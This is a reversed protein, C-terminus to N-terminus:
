ASKFHSFQQPLDVIFTAGKGLSSECRVGGGLAEAYRKVISLGLGTSDEGNTPRASLQKYPLFLQAQEEPSIGDGENTVFLYCRQPSTRHSEVDVNPDAASELCIHVTARKPSYKVANSILNEVIRYFADEDLTLIIAPESSVFALSIGKAEARDAFDDVIIRVRKVADFATPAQLWFNTATSSEANSETSLQADHKPDLEPTQARLLMKVARLMAETTHIITQAKEIQAKEIQAREDAQKHHNTTSYIQEAAMKVGLLPNKLDHAVVGLFEMKEANLRQLERNREQM